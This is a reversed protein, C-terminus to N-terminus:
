AGFSVLRCMDDDSWEVTYGTGATRSGSVLRGPSGFAAEFDAETKGRFDMTHVSGLQRPHGDFLPWGIRWCFDLFFGCFAVGLLVGLWIWHQGCVPRNVRHNM